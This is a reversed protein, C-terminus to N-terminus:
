WACYRCLATDLYQVHGTINCQTYSLCTLRLHWFLSLNPNVDMLDICIQQNPQFWFSHSETNYFLLRMKMKVLWGHARRSPIRLRNIVRYADCKSRSNRSEILRVDNHRSQNQKKNDWVWLQAFQYIDIYWKHIYISIRLTMICSGNFTWKPQSSGNLM